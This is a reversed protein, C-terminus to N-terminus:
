GKVNDLLKASRRHHNVLRGAERARRELSDVLLTYAFTWGDSDRRALGRRILEDRLGNVDDVGCRECLATWEGYDIERGLVAAMELADWLAVSDAGKLDEVLRVLRGMWLTHISDPIEPVSGRPLRFGHPGASIRGREIWDGLLQAAFLPNGETRRALADALAPELPLMLDILERHHDISLAEVDIRLCAENSELAAVLEAVAPEEALVDARLTLVVLAASSDFAGDMLHRTFELAEMSWQADDLWVICPRHLTHRRIFRSLLAFKQGPSSFHYRPGTIARSPDDTPFVLETLARADVEVTSEEPLKPLTRVLHEHFGARDLKWANLSRRVMAPWGHTSGRATHMTRLVEAAGLEHARTTMWDVLRSKGAGSEGVVLIVRPKGEADVDGLAEWIRHRAEDRDVFPVERLGFLGLGTGLLPAPLETAHETQWTSPMSIGPDEFPLPKGDERTRRLDARSHTEFVRTAAMDLDLTQGAEPITRDGAGLPTELPGPVPGSGSRAKHYRSTEAPPLARAADAARQFRARQDIAMARHIWEELSEPVEFQPDLGPRAAGVHEILMALPSNAVFPARGCVLEWVICGLAYIDTWPGYARWEGRAQEPSMYLPTGSVSQLLSTSDRDSIAVLHAIGFDALKIRPTGEFGEFVLLNEPKLDRHIVGRAHSFALGDLVQGIIKRLTGWDGPPGQDRMAGREALEMAVFPSGEVLVGKSASAAGADVKGY